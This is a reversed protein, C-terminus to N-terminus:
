LSVLLLFTSFMVISMWGSLSVLRWCKIIHGSLINSTGWGLWQKEVIGFPYTVPGGLRIGLAGAAFSEAQAANPSPSKRRDRYWTKLGAIPAFRGFWASSLLFLISLRAPLCGLVDDARASAWGFRQYRQNRYGVMSDLTNATRYGLAAAVGVLSPDWHNFRAVTAGVCFWFVPAFFGDVFSEAISEVAARAVGYADLRSADRGVIRQVSERASAIDGTELARWIPEAHHYQDKLAFSSYLIFVNFVAVLWENVRQLGTHLVVYSSATVTVTLIFFLGGGVYGNKSLDFLQRELFSALHGILRVPHLRYVPDGVATDVLFAVM